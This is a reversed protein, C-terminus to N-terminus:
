FEKLVNYAPYKVFKHIIEYDQIRGKIYGLTSTDKNRIFSDSGFFFDVVRMKKEGENKDDFDVIFMIDYTSGEVSHGEVLEYERGSDSIVAWEGCDREILQM